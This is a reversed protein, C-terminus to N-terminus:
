LHGKEFDACSEGFAALGDELYEAVLPKGILYEATRQNQAERAAALAVLADAKDYDGRGIWALAVLAAAEDSNLDTIFSRLESYTSDDAYDELIERFDEDSPNSGPNPEVVEVKAHFERAKVVIFCVKDTSIGLPMDPEEPKHM